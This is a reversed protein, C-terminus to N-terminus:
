RVLIGSDTMRWDKHEFRDDEFVPEVQYVFSELVQYPDEDSNVVLYGSDTVCRVQDQSNAWRSRRQAALHGDEYLWYDWGIDILEDPNYTQVHALIKRSMAM